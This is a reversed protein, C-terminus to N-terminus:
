VPPRTLKPADKSGLSILDFVGEAISSRQRVSKPKEFEIRPKWWSLKEQPNPNQLLFTYLFFFPANVFALFPLYYQIFRVSSVPPDTSEDMVHYVASKTDPAPVLQSSSM